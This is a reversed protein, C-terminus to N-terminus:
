EDDFLTMEKKVKGNKQDSKERLYIKVEFEDFGFKRLITKVLSIINKASLNTEVFLNDAIKEPKTISVKNNGIWIRTDKKFDNDDVFGQFAKPEWEYLISCIKLLFEKWSKVKYNSELFEFESIRENTFDDSYSLDYSIEEEVETRYSSKPLEWVVLAVNLLNQARRNIADENWKDLSALLRNLFLRSKKFGNPMDRKEPFPKNSMQSNYGTLTLNGITNGLRANIEHINDGMERKWVDKPKRPLIHEITLTGEEVLKEIDVREKNDHNELNELLYIKYKGTLSYIDKSIFNKSFEDNSPFRQNLQKKILIHKFIDVYNEKWDNKSKIEKCALRFIDKLAFTPVECILRRFLFTETTKLIDIVELTTLHKSNLDDFVELLFPYTVTIDLKSLKKLSNQIDINPDNCYAIKNWIKSFKFLDKLLIEIEQHKYHKSTYEKFANYIDQSEIKPTKREKMTLYDKIFHTVRYQTNVEMPNWFETYFKKQKDENENILLFNRILDAGSLSVGTSNLSEFILQPDDDDKRKLVINIVELSAIATFIEDPSVTGRKIREIFYNYNITISSTPLLKEKKHYILARFADDDDKVSKLKVKIEGNFDESVLYRNYLIDKKFKTIEGTEDLYNYVALILLMISTIRQQGDIVLHNNISGAGRNESEFTVISGMFYTKLKKKCINEIDDFLKKCNEKKWDYNRQYVPIVFCDNSLGIFSLFNKKHAEM